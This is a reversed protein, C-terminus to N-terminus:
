REEKLARHASQPLPNKYTNISDATRGFGSIEGLRQRHM